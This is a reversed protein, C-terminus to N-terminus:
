SLVSRTTMNCYHVGFSCTYLYIVFVSITIFTLLYKFFSVGDISVLKQLHKIFTNKTYSNFTPKYNSFIFLLLAM